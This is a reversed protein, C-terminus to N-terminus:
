FTLPTQLTHMC